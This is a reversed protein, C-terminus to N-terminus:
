FFKKQIPNFLLKGIKTYKIIFNFLFWILTAIGIIALDYIVYPISFVNINGLLMRPQYPLYSTTGFILKM